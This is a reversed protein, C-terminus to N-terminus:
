SNAYILSAVAGLGVTTIMMGKWIKDEPTTFYKMFGNWSGEREFWDLHNCVAVATNTAVIEIQDPFNNNCCYESLTLSFTYLSVIRGFNCGDTLVEGMVAQSCEDINDRNLNLRSCIGNFVSAHKSRMEKCQEYLKEGVRDKRQSRGLEKNIVYIALNKSRQFLETAVILDSRPPVM